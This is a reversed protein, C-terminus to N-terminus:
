PGKELPSPFSRPPLYISTLPASSHLAGSTDEKRRGGSGGDGGSRHEFGRVRIPPLLLPLPLAGASHPIPPRFLKKEEEEQQHHLRSLGDELCPNPAQRGRPACLLDWLGGPSGSCTTCPHRPTPSPAPSPQLSPFPQPLPPALLCRQRERGPHRPTRPPSTSATSAASTATAAAAAAATAAGPHEPQLPPQPPLPLQLPPLPPPLEVFCWVCPCALLSM